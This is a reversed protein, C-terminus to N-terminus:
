GSLGWEGGHPGVVGDPASLQDFFTHFFPNLGLVKSTLYMSKGSLQVKM